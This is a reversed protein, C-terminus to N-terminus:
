LLLLTNVLIGVLSGQYFAIGLARSSSLVRRAHPFVRKEFNRSLNSLGSAMKVELRSSFGRLGHFLSGVARKATNLPLLTAASISLEM